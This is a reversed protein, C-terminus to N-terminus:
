GTDRQLEDQGDESLRLAKVKEATARLAPLDMIRQYILSEIGRKEMDPLEDFLRYDFHFPWRPRPKRKAISVSKVRRGASRKETVDRLISEATTGLARAINPLNSPKRVLGSEIKAITQQSVGASAALEDQTLKKDKRRTKIVDGLKVYYSGVLKTTPLCVAFTTTM